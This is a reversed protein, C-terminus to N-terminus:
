LVRKLFHNLNLVKPRKLDHIIALSTDLVDELGVVLHRQGQGGGTVRGHLTDHGVHQLLVVHDQNGGIADPTLSSLVHSSPLTHRRFKRFIQSSFERLREYKKKLIPASTLSNLLGGPIGKVRFSIPSARSFCLGAKNKM